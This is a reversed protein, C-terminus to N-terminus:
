KCLGLIKEEASCARTPKQQGPCCNRAQQALLVCASAAILAIRSM